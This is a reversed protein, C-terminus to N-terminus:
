FGEDDDVVVVQRQFREVKIAQNVHTGRFDVDISLTRNSRYNRLAERLYVPNGVQQLAELLVTAVDYGTYSFSDPERNFRLRYATNFNAIRLSDDTNVFSLTYALETDDLRRTELDVTSWEESGLLHVESRMAELDTLLSEILTPAAEGTFPAYIAKTPTYKLSDILLSDSTFFRTYDTIDYGLDQLDSVFYYSIHAGLEEARYRFGSASAAGLTNSEALVAVTDYGLTNVAYEAIKRGQAEFSPNFQFAYNNDLNISDSNALPAIMPVEFEESLQAYVKATESFLPGIIVDANENWVLDTMVNSAIAPDSETDKYNVFVKRDPTNSNFEEVALLIGFYLNQSVGFNQGFSTYQPLAVGINYITGEPVQPYGPNFSLSYSVSDVLQTDLRDTPYLQPNLETRKYYELLTKLTSYDVVGIAGEILDFRVKQYSTTNFAQYRQGTSLYALIQNYLRQGEFVINTRSTSQSLQYLQDLSSSFNKLEFYALAKTYLADQYIDPDSNTPVKDLFHLAKRSEGLNFYSKASFLYGRPENVQEFVRAARIFDGADYLSVGTEFVQAYGFQSVLLFVSLILIKKM